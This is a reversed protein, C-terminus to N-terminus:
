SAPVWYRLKGARQDEMIGGNAEIVKKSGTNDADCTVLVPDIGLERAVPLASALMATAHGRRRASPRVDYGIHGALERLRPTLRHRIAIRGLYEGDDLWWLTTSPVFGEPRATEELVQARLWGVYEAFVGPDSWRGGFRRMEQGIMTDDAPVGRGEAQLEAMAALFSAQVDVTPQSLEAM